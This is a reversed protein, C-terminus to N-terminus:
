FNFGFLVVSVVVVSVAVYIYETPPLKIGCLYSSGQVSNNNNENNYNDNLHLHHHHHHNDNIFLHRNAATVAAAENPPALGLVVSTTLFGVKALISTTITQKQHIPTKSAITTTAAPDISSHSTRNGQQRQDNDDDDNDRTYQNDNNNSTNAGDTQHIEQQQQQQQQLEQQLRSIRKMILRSADDPDMNSRECWVDNIALIEDSPNLVLADSFLGFTERTTGITAIELGSGPCPELTLGTRVLQQQLSVLATEYPISTISRALSSSSSSSPPSPPLSATSSLQILKTSLVVSAEVYQSDGRPNWAVIVINGTAAELFSHAFTENWYRCSKKNISLIHYGRRLSTNAFLYPSESENDTEQNSTNDKQYNNRQISKIRLVYPQKHVEITEDSNDRAWEFTMGLKTHVHPKHVKVSILAPVIRRRGRGEEDNRTRRSQNQQQVHRQGRGQTTTMQQPPQPQQRRPAKTRTASSTDRDNLFTAVITGNNDNTNSNHDEDDDRNYVNNTGHDSTTTTNHNTENDSELFSVQQRFVNENGQHHHHDEMPTIPAMHNNNNAPITQQQQQEQHQQQQHTQASQHPHNEYHNLNNSYRTSIDMWIEASNTATTTVTGTTRYSASIMSRDDDDTSTGIGNGSSLPPPPLTTAIERQGLEGGGVTGTWNSSPSFTLAVMSTDTDNKHGERTTFQAEEDDDDDDDDYNENYRESQTQLFQQQRTHRKPSVHNRRKPSLHNHRKPSVPQQRRSTATTAFPATAAAATAAAAATGTVNTATVTEIARAAIEEDSKENIDNFTNNYFQADYAPTYSYIEPRAEAAPLSHIMNMKSDDGGHIVFRGSDREM